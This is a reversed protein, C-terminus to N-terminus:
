GPAFGGPSAGAVDTRGPRTLNAVMTGSRGQVFRVARFRTSDYELVVHFSGISVSRAPHLCVRVVHLTDSRRVPPVELSVHSLAASAKHARCPAPQRGAAASALLMSAAIFAGGPRLRFSIGAGRACASRM